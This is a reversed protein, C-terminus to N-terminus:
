LIAAPTTSFLLWIGALIAEPDNEEEYLEDNDYGNGNRPSQVHGTSPRGDSIVIIDM